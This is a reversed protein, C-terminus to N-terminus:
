AGFKTLRMANAMMLPMLEKAPFRGLNARSCAAEGYEKADGARVFKSYLLTPVPHWSHAKLVAPTSHDGSIAIVDPNLAFLRPLQADVEEIVHAKADFNGDEGYSDTKKIHLYFFDFDKWSSELTTFEDAVTEGNVRLAQMGVLKSVGRYMPYVAISAARVGYTDHLTPLTPRKAFGRLLLTNAPHKDKLVANAKAVFENALAATAEAGPNFARVPLAPVGVRSPDSDALDGSLGDGRLVLVFRHEKVTEVFTEVGRLKITRLLDVLKRNEATSIRGARRDSLNGRADMTAFNGRAAVDNAGLEFDIGLAELVGRGIEFVLPDYGFLGLHGPGSGPTIGAGVPDSLGLAAQAALTDMNPKRATELETKGGVDRPLGGLGDMVLLVIKTASPITLSQLMELTM